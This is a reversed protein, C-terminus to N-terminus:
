TRCIGPLVAGLNESSATLVGKGRGMRERQSTFNNVHVRLHQETHVLQCRTGQAPSVVVVAKKSVCKDARTSRSHDNATDTM